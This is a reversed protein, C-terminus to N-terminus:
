VFFKPFIVEKRHDEQFIGKGKGLFLRITWVCIGLRPPINPVAAVRAPPLGVDELVWGAGHQHRSFRFYTKQYVPDHIGDPCFRAVGISGASSKAPEM